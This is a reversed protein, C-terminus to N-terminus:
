VTLCTASVWVELTEHKINDTFAIAITNKNVVLRDLLPELWGIHVEM